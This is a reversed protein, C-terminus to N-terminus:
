KCVARVTYGYYRADDHIYIGGGDNEDVFFLCWANWPENALSSSWYYGITGDDEPNSLKDEDRFGASPLFIYNGSKYSTVTYGPVGQISTCEWHCNDILEQWEAQTPTRWNDGMAVSAVDDEATLTTNNDVVPGYSGDTNYKNLLDYDGNCWRYSPWYYGSEKGPKWLANAKYASGEQYYPETEGWAFYEGFDTESKAGVNCKAWKVSLGLDVYDPEPPAAPEGLVPRVPMGVFRNSYDCLTHFNGDSDYNFDFDYYSYSWSYTTALLYLGASGSKSLYSGIRYGAAPLFISNGNIKSTIRCGFINNATEPVCNCFEQLELLDTRTPTRWEGGWNVRAPDDEYNYDEFSSANDADCYKTISDISGKSWKYSEWVYGDGKDRKWDKCPNDLAHGPLYYPETEGWAFYDGAEEPKTAGVNFTAWKVGSPLGLDVAEHDIESEALVTVKCTASVYREAHWACVELTTVGPSIATVVGNYTVKAIAEDASQWVLYQEKSANSPEVTASLEYKQGTILTIETKSPTISTVPIHKEKGIVPRVPAGESRSNGSYGNINGFSAFTYFLYNGTLWTTMFCAEKGYFKLSQYSRYGAAPIIISNGNIKSTVRTFTNGNETETSLYCNDMLEFMEVYTPTRWEGGWNARAADDEYNFVSFSMAKDARCYKTYEGGYESTIWKYSEDQYGRKGPKWDTCPNDLAHGPLYYPETEGWAFYDGPDEPSTAGVNMNAWKVGSPLGLDVAQPGLESEDKVTVTCTSTNGGDVSKVTIIAEGLSVATVTGDETISAVGPNSTTWTVKPNDADEPQIRAVLHRTMGVALTLTGPAISIGTVNKAEYKGLVPRVPLIGLYRAACWSLSSGEYATLLITATSETWLESTWYLGVPYKDDFTNAPSTTYHVDNDMFGNAPLFISQGTHGSIKSTVLSGWVGNQQTWTWTFKKPDLLEQWDSETPTRWEGGWRARAPDDEYGYDAFSRAGDKANYKTISDKTGNCWKYNNWSYHDKPELEGWALFDGPEWPDKAGLNDDAWMNGSELGLDVYEHGMYENKPWLQFYGSNVAFSEDSIFLAANVGIKNSAFESALGEGTTTITLIGDESVERKHIPLEIIDGAEAKTLTYTASLKFCGKEMDLLSRAANEPEVKFRITFLGAGAKVSGDSYDPIAAISLIPGAGRRLKLVTGDALTLYVYDDDWKVDKFWADGDEGTAKGLEQWTAGGDTSLYWNGKEIKLQPVVADAGPKGDEGSARVKNGKADLLWNGDLTWYYVGDSDQKVGIVPTAGDTGNKGHNIIASTGDSFVLKYGDEVPTISTIVIGNKIAGVITQLSSINANATQMQQELASLRSDLGDIKDMVASEDFCSVALGTLLSAALLLKFLSKM